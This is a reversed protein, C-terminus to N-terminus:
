RVRVYPPVSGCYRGGFPASLLDDNISELESYVDIYENECSCYIEFKAFCLLCSPNVMGCIVEEGEGGDGRLHGTM